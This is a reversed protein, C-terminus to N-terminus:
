ALSVVLQSRPLNVPAVTTASRVGAAQLKGQPPVSAWPWLMVAYEALVGGLPCLQLAIAWDRVQVFPESLPLWACGVQMSGPVCVYEVDPVNENVTGAYL